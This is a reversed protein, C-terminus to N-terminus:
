AGTLLKSRLCLVWEPPNPLGSFGKEKYMHFSKELEIQTSSKKKQKPTETTLPCIPIRPDLQHTVDQGIDITKGNDLNLWYHRGWQNKYVFFGEILESKIGHKELLEKLLISGILCCGGLYRMELEVAVKDVLLSLSVEERTMMNTTATSPNEAYSSWFMRDRETM